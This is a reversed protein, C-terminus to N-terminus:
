QGMIDMENIEIIYIKKRSINIHILSWIMKGWNQIYTMLYPIQPQTSRDQTLVQFPTFNWEGSSYIKWNTKFTSGVTGHHNQELIPEKM